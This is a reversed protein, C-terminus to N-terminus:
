AQRLRRHLRALVGAVQRCEECAIGLALCPVGDAQAEPCRPDRAFDVLDDLLELLEGRAAGAPVERLRRVL